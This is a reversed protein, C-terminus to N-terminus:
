CPQFDDDILPTEAGARERQNKNGDRGLWLILLVKVGMGRSDRSGHSNGVLTMRKRRVAQGGQFLKDGVGYFEPLVTNLCVNGTQQCFLQFYM